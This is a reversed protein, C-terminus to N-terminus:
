YKVSALRAKAEAVMDTVIAAAPRISSVHEVAQGAALGVQELDMTADRTPTFSSFRRIEMHHGDHTMHGLVPQQALDVARADANDHWRDTFSNRLVRMPNFVPADPGFASTLLTDAAGSSVIRQKFDAHIGAEESALFRTGVLVGDAGLMLAAALGRGDAIGGAALVLAQGRVADAVAPVLVLTTVDPRTHGGAELGQAIVLDVGDEVARRAAEASNVQEWIRIGAAKLKAIWGAPPHQWHFSVTRAGGEIVADVHAESAFVTILNTHFDPGVRATLDTLRRALLHPPCLTACYAGFGGAEIVAATLADTVAFTAGACVIPVRVGYSRTFATTLDPTM